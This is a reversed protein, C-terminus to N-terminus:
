ISLDFDDKRILYIISCLCVVIITGFIIMSYEALFSIIKEFLTLKNDYADSDNNKSLEKIYKLSADKFQSYSTEKINIWKNCLKYNPIKKCIPDTYYKNFNPLTVYILLLNDDYCGHINGKIHYKLYSGALKNKIIIENNENATLINGDEDIIRIEKHVNSIVVDFYIKNYEGKETAYVEKHTYSTTVNSAIKQIRAKDSYECNERALVSNPSNIFISLLLVLITRKFFM